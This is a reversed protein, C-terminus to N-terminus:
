ANIQMRILNLALNENVSNYAGYVKLIVELIREIQKITYLKAIIECERNKLLRNNSNATQVILKDRFFVILARLFDGFQRRDKFKVNVGGLFDDILGGLSGLDASVEYFPLFIKRCRSIITPLIGELKATSVAIFSNAAPEELTKLFASAAENSLSEAKEILVTKKAARFSKLSLFRISERVNDIKITLPDPRVVFIDPHSLTEIKKCDWCAGCFYPNDKCNVVKIVDRILSAQEGIFLYSSGVINHKKLLFFYDLIKNQKM